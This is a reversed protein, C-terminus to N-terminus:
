GELRVIGFTQTQPILFVAEDGIHVPLDRNNRDLLVAIGYQTTGFADLTDEDEVFTVNKVSIEWGNSYTLNIM